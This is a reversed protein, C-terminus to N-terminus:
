KLRFTSFLFFITCSLIIPNTSPRGYIVYCQNKKYDLATVNLVVYLKRQM